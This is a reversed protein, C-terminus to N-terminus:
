VGSRKVELVDLSSPFFLAQYPLLVSPSPLRLLATLLSATFLSFHLIPTNAGRYNTKYLILNLALLLLSTRSTM